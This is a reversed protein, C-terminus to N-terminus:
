KKVGVDKIGIHRHRLALNIASGIYPDSGRAHKKLLDDVPSGPIREIAMLCDDRVEKDTLMGALLGAEEVGGIYGLLQIADARVNRPNGTGALKFLAICAVEMEAKAGPRGAHMSIRRIAQGATMAANPNNSMFVMGLAPLAETGFLKAQNVATARAAADGHRIQTIFSSVAPSEALLLMEPTRENTKM